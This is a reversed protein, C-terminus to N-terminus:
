LVTTGSEGVIAFRGNFIAAPQGHEAVVSQLTISAKGQEEFRKFFNQWANAQPSICISKISESTIPLLYEIDAKAVVINPNLGVEFCKIFALGITNTVCLNFISGGFATKKDNRNLSLPASVILQQGDYNDIKLGMCVVLPLHKQIFRNLRESHQQYKDTM